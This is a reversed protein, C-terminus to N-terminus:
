AIEKLSLGEQQFKKIIKISAPTWDPYLSVNKRGYGINKSFLGERLYYNFTEVPNKGMDIGEIELQKLIQKKTLM